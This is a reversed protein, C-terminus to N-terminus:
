KADKRDKKEEGAIALSLMLPFPCLGEMDEIALTNM